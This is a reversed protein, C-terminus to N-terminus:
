ASHSQSLQIVQFGLAYAMADSRLGVWGRRIPQTEVPPPRKVRFQPSLFFSGDRGRRNAAVWQTTFSDQIARFIIGSVRAGSDSSTKRAMLNMKCPEQWRTCIASVM